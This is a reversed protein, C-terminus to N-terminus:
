FAAASACVSFSFFFAQAGESVWYAATGLVAMTAGFAPLFGMPTGMVVAGALVVVGRKVSNAVSFATVSGMKELVKFAAASHLFLLVGSVSLYLALSALGPSAVDDDGGPATAAAAFAGAGGVGVGGGAGGWWRFARPGDVIFAYPVVTAFSMVTVVAYTNAASLPRRHFEKQRSARKSYLDRVGVSASSAVAFLLGGWTLSAERSVLLVGGVIPILCLNVMKHSAEGAMLRDVLASALPELAQIATVAALSSFRLAAGTSANSLSHWLSVYFIIPMQSMRLSPTRVVGLMWAPLILLVGAGLEATLVTLPFPFVVVALALYVPGPKDPAASNLGAAAAVDATATTVISSSSPSSPAISDMGPASMGRHHGRASGGSAHSAISYASSGAISPARDGVDSSGRRNAMRSQNKNPPQEGM